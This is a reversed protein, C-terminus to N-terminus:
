AAKTPITITTPRLHKPTRFYDNAVDTLPRLYATVFRFISNLNLSIVRAMDDQEEYAALVRTVTDVAAPFNQKIWLLRKVVSENIKLEITGSQLGPRERWLADQLTMRKNKARTEARKKAAKARRHVKDVLTHVVAPADLYSDPDANEPDAAAAHLANIAAQRVAPDTLELIDTLETLSLTISKIKNM